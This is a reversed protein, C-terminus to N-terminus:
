LSLIYYAGFTANWQMSPEVKQAFGQNTVYLRMPHSNTDVIMCNAQNNTIYPLERDRWASYALHESPAYGFFTLKPRVASLFEFSRDSTRGHHPAILLEVGKIEEEHNELLHEWTKDHSDGTILIRGGVSKYLIVYSSDNYEGTKNAQAVLDPTPALVYLGDGGSTGDEFENYYKGRSGSYLTLRKPSSDPKSDRISKYFLWDLENHPATKEFDKKETNDTDWFNTPNFTEFLEKIGGMHDMDPHTLVFRFISDVSLNKLYEIPNVPHDRQRFDGRVGLMEGIAKRVLSEANNVDIVTVHGSPHQIISCDGLGVNLFHFIGM